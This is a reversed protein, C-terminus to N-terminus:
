GPRKTDRSEDYEVLVEEIIHEAGEVCQTALQPTIPKDFNYDAAVRQGHLGGLLKAAFRVNPEGSDGLWKIFQRHTGMGTDNTLRFNKSCRHERLFHYAAYYAHSIVTRCRINDPQTAANLRKAERLLESWSSM